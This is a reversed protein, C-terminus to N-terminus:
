KKFMKRLDDISIFVRTPRGHPCFDPNEASDLDKLLKAIRIRDPVERGRISSHCAMKAALTKRISDIPELMGKEKAEKLLSASLDIMLANLDADKLFEPMGRVILTNGGFDEIELGLDNLIQINDLIVRYQGASLRVQQPLLPRFSHSDGEAQRKLLREYNIREHAAHYDIIMLGRGEAIAGFTDGLYLFSFQEAELSSYLYSPESIRLDSLYQPSMANAYGHDENICHSEALTGKAEANRGMLAEAATRHVLDFVRGKDEFRVERKSPHVNFDVMKPDMNLFVFFVPHREKPILGEYAKYVAYTISQDKVPRKNIFIFQNNRNNRLSLTNGLFSRISIESDGSEIEILNSTFENGFVQLIRERFSVAPPLSLVENGDIELSFGIHFHSIAERTVADIIHYNETSDSKLFKRRAPTNFFLEKVEITTGSSPCDRIDKIEGGIIELCTGVTSNPNQLESNPNKTATVLRVKSVAAISSLAEGRFGMTRINLLDEEEKIKSTAYREFALIADEREMGVGNDSVRILRRGANLVHVEIRTSMADISNELLEKVVSAPREVVEGAAIKNRLITSLLHIKPM